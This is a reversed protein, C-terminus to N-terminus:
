LQSREGLVRRHHQLQGAGVAQEFDVLARDVGHAAEATEQRVSHALPQPMLSRWSGRRGSRSLNEMVGRSLATVKGSCGFRRSAAAPDHRRLLGWPTTSPPLMMM